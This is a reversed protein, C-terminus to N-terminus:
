DGREKGPEDPSAAAGPAPKEDRARTQTATREAQLIEIRERADRMRHELKFRRDHVRSQRAWRKPSILHNWWRLRALVVSAAEAPFLGRRADDRLQAAKSPSRVVLTWVMIAAHLLFIALCGKAVVSQGAIFFLTSLTAFLVAGLSSGGIEAPPRLDAATRECFLDHLSAAEM